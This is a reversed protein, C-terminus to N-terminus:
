KVKAERGSKPPLQARTYDVTPGTASLGTRLLHIKVDYTVTAHQFLNDWEDSYQRWLRPHQQFVATGFQATDTRKDQLTKMTERMRLEVEQNLAQEMKKMAEVNLQLDPCARELEAKGRLRVHVNAKGGTIIPSVKVKTAMIRFTSGIDVGSKGQCPVNLVIDRTPGIMWFLGQSQETNLSGVLQPGQFIGVGSVVPSNKSDLDLQTMIPANSAQMYERIVRLQQSMAVPSNQSYQEVLQRLGMANIGEPTTPAKLLDRAEGSTVLILENRRFNRDRDLYDFSRDIGHEAYQKGFIVLSNHPLFIERPVQTNLKNMAQEITPATADAVMYQPGTAQQAGGQAGQALVIEASVRVMNAVEDVGFALVLNISDVEALDRTCGPLGLTMALTLIIIQGRRWRSWRRM